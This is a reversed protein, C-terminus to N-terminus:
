KIPQITSTVIFAHNNANEWGLVHFNNRICWKIATEVKPLDFGETCEYPIEIGQNWFESFIKVREPRGHSAPLITVKLIHFRPMTNITPLINTYTM